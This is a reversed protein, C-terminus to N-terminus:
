KGSFSKRLVIVNQYLTRWWFNCFYIGNGKWRVKQTKVTFLIFRCQLSSDWFLVFVYLAIFLSMKKEGPYILQLSKSYVFSKIECKWANSTGTGGFWNPGHTLFTHFCYDTQQFYLIFVFDLGSLHVHLLQVQICNWQHRSFRANKFHWMKLAPFFNLSYIIDQWHGYVHYMQCLMQYWSLIFSLASELRPLRTFGCYLSSWNKKGLYWYYSCASHRQKRISFAGGTSQEQLLLFFM